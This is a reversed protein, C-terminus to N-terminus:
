RKLITDISRHYADHFEGQKSLPPPGKLEKVTKVLGDLSKQDPAAGAVLFLRTGNFTQAAPLGQAVLYQYTQEAIAEDRNRAYEALVVTWKNAPDLLASEAATRAEKAPAAEVREASSSAREAGAGSAADLKRESPKTGDSSGVRDNSAPAPRSSEKANVQDDGNLTGLWYALGLLAAVALALAPAYSHLTARMARERLASPREVKPPKAGLKDVAFPDDAKPAPMPRRPLVGPREEHSSAKFAELLNKSRQTM